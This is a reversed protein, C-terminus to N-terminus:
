IGEPELYHDVCLIVHRETVVESDFRDTKLEKKQRVECVRDNKEM